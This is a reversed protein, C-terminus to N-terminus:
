AQQEQAPKKKPKPQLGRERGPKLGSTVFGDQITLLQHGDVNVSRVAIQQAYNTYRQARARQRESQEPYIRGM